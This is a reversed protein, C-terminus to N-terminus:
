YEDEEEQYKEIYFNEEEEDFYLIGKKSDDFKSVFFKNDNNDISHIFFNKSYVGNLSTNDMHDIMNYIENIEEESFSFNNELYELKTTLNNVIYQVSDESIPNNKDSTKITLKWVPHDKLLLRLTFYKGKKYFLNKRFLPYKWGNKLLRFAINFISDNAIIIRKEINGRM